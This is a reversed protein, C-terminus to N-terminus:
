FDLGDVKPPGSESVGTLGTVGLQLAVGLGRISLVTEDVLGQIQTPGARLDVHDILILTSGSRPDNVAGSEVLHGGLDGKPFTSITGPGSIERSARLLASQYRSRSRQPMVSVKIPSPSPM